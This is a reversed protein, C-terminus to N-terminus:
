MRNKRVGVGIAELICVYLIQVIKVNGYCPVRVDRDDDVIVRLRQCKQIDFHRSAIPDGANRDHM